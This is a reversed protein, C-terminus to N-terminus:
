LVTLHGAALIDSGTATGGSQRCAFLSPTKKTVLATKQKTKEKLFIFNNIEEGTNKM